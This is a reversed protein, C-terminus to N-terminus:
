RLSPDLAEFPSVLRTCQVGNQWMEEVPSGDQSSELWAIRMLVAKAEQWSTVKSVRSWVCMREEFWARMTSIFESPDGVQQTPSGSDMEEDGNSSEEDGDDDEDVEEEEEEDEDSTEVHAQRTQYRWSQADLSKGTGSHLEYTKGAPTATTIEQQSATTRTPEAVDARQRGVHRSDFEGREGVGWLGEQMDMRRAVDAARPTRPQVARLAMLLARRHRSALVLRRRPISRAEDAGETRSLGKRLRDLLLHLLNSDVPQRPVWRDALIIHLYLYAATAWSRSSSPFITPPLNPYPDADVNQDLSEEAKRREPPIPPYAQSAEESGLAPDLPVTDSPHGPVLRVPPPKFLLSAVYSDADALLVAMNKASLPAPIQM